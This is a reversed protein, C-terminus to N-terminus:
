LNTQEDHLNAIYFHSENDDDDGDDDDDNVDNVALIIEIQFWTLDRYIVM